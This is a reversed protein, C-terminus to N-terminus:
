KRNFKSVSGVLASSAEGICHLKGSKSSFLNGESDVLSNRAPVQVIFYVVLEKIDKEIIEFTLHITYKNM